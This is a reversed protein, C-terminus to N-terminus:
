DLVLDLSQIGVTRQRRARLENRIVISGRQDRFGAFSHQAVQDVPAAQDEDNLPNKETVQAAGNDDPDINRECQEEGDDNHHEGALVGIQERNASDIEADDDVRRHNQDLVHEPIQLRAGGLPLTEQRLSRSRTIRALVRCTSLAM